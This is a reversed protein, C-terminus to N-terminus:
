SGSGTFSDFHVKLPLVRRANAYFALSVRWMLIEIYILARCGV